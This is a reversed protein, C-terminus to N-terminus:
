ALPKAADKLQYAPKRSRRGMTYSGFILAAVLYSVGAILFLRPFGVATAIQGGALATFAVGIGFAMTISSAVTTRWEALVRSQSFLLFAPSILSAFALMSVFSLSVAIWHAITVAPLVILSLAILGFFITQKQGFRKILLPTLLAMLGLLQGLASIIGIVSTPVLFITDLYVNAYIRLTWGGSMAFFHVLSIMIIFSLPARSKPQTKDVSKKIPAIEKTQKMVLAAVLYLLSAVLLAARYPVATELSAQLTGAFFTPLFGGVLNGLFGFLPMLGSHLAFAHERESEQTIRMIYPSTNVVVLSGSFWALAYSGVIWGAQVSEPLYPSLPLSVFGLSIFIYGVIIAKRSGVWNTIWSAPLSAGALVLPAIGNVLGIFNADYGLRILYLNLLLTYIGFFVFSHVATAAFFFYLNRNFQKIKSFYTKM